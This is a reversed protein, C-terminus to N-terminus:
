SPDNEWGGGTDKGGVRCGACWGVSEENGRDQGDGEVQEERM